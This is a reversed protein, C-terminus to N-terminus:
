FKSSQPYVGIEHSVEMYMRQYVLIYGHSFLFMSMTRLPLDDISLWNEIAINPDVPAYVLWEYDIMM